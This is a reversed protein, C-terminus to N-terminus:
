SVGRVHDVIRELSNAPLWVKETEGWKDAERELQFRQVVAGNSLRIEARGTVKGSEGRRSTLQDDFNFAWSTTM